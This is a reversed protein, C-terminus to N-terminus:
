QFIEARAEELEELIDDEIEDDDRQGDSEKATSMSDMSGRRRLLSSGHGSDTAISDTDSAYSTTRSQRSKTSQRM